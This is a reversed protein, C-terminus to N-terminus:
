GACRRPLSWSWRWLSSGSSRLSPWAPWSGECPCSACSSPPTARVVHSRGCQALIGALAVERAGRLRAALQRALRTIQEDDMLMGGPPQVVVQSQLEVTDEFAPRHGPTGAQRRVVLPQRDVDLVVREVVALELSADGLALVAGTAHDDPVSAPPRRNAIGVLAQGLTMQFELQLAALEFAAPMEHM